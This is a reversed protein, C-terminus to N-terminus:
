TSDGQRVSKMRKERVEDREIQVDAPCQFGLKVSEGDRRVVVVRITDNLWVGEGPKRGLVLM